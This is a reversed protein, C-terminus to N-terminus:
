ACHARLCYLTSPLFTCVRQHQVTPQGGTRFVSALCSCRPTYLSDISSSISRFDSDSSCRRIASPRSSYSHFADLPLCHQYWVHLLKSHCQDLFFHLLSSLLCLCLCVSDCSLLFLVLKVSGSPFFYLSCGSRTQPCSCSGLLLIHRVSSGLPRSCSTPIIPARRCLADM